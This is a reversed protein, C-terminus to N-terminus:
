VLRQALTMTAAAALPMTLNDAPPVPAAEAVVAAAAGALAVPLPLDLWRWAGAALVLCVALCALSGEVSKQWLRRRGWRSGAVGATWDGVIAYLWATVAVARTFFLALLLSALVFWTIATIRHREGERLIAGGFRFVLDNVAARRLRALEAGLLVVLLGGALGATVAQSTFAYLGPFVLATLRLAKRPGLAGKNTL